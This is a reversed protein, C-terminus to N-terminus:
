EGYRVLKEIRQQYPAMRLLRESLFTLADADERTIVIRAEDAVDGDHMVCRGVLRELLRAQEGLSMPKRVVENMAPRFWITLRFISASNM